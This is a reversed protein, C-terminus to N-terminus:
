SKKKILLPEAEESGEEDEDWEDELWHRRTPLSKIAVLKARVTKMRWISEAVILVYLILNVSLLAKAREIHQDSLGWVRTLFAVDSLLLSLTAPM